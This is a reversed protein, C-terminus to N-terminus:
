FIAFSFILSVPKVSPASGNPLPLSASTPEETDQRQNENEDTKTTSAQYEFEGTSSKEEISETTSQYFEKLFALVRTLQVISCDVFLLSCKKKM